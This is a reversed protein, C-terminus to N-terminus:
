KGVGDLFARGKATIAYGAGMFDGDENCLGKGYQTLGKRAMRRCDLRVTRRNFGTKKCIGAFTFYLPGGYFDGLLSRLIKRDRESPKM